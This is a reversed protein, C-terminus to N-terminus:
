SDSPEDAFVSRRSSAGQYHLRGIGPRLRLRQRTPDPRALVEYVQQNYQREAKESGYSDGIAECVDALAGYFLADLGKNPMAPPDDVGIDVTLQTASQAPITISSVSKFKMDGRVVATGDLIISDTVTQGLHGTGTMTATGGVTASSGAMSVYTLRGFDAASHDFTGSTVRTAATGSLALEFNIFGSDYVMPRVRRQYTYPLAMQKSPCPWCLLRPEGQNSEHDLSFIRPTGSTAPHKAYLDRFDKLPVLKSNRMGLVSGAVPNIDVLEDFDSPLVYANPVIYYSINTATTGQYAKALVLATSSSVSSIRYHEGSNVSYFIQATHNTSNFATTSNASVATSDRTVDVTGTNEIPRLLLEDFVYSWEQKHKILLDKYRQNIFRDTQDNISSNSTTQGSTELVADRIDKLTKLDQPTKPIAM